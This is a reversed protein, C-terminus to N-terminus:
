TEPPDPEKRNGFDLPHAARLDPLNFPKLRRGRGPRTSRDRSRALAAQLIFVHEANSRLVNM